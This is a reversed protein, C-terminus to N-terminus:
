SSRGNKCRYYLALGVWASNTAALLAAAAFSAWQELSPYYLCNWWGWSAFFASSLVSVGKVDKCRYLLLLNYAACGAGVLEFSANIVDFNMLEEAGV